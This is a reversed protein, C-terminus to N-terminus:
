TSATSPPNSAAPMPKGVSRPATAEPRVQDSSVREGRISDLFSELGQSIEEHENVIPTVGRDQLVQEVVANPRALFIYSKPRAEVQDSGAWMQQIQYLLLRINIDTLSYGIFLVSRGLLDNKLKIDLPHEFDLRAFYSSETLVLTADDDFDGHYKVIQPIGVPARAIDSVSTIKAYERGYHEYARELWRDYNTTYVIPFDLEVIRQHVRSAAIDISPRHFETDMWSRLPGLKGVKLRYYEALTYHDGLRLFLDPHYGLQEAMHRILEEWSPLGLNRSVGAGVFLVLRREVWADVLGRYPIM